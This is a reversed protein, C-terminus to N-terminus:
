KQSQTQQIGLDETTKANAKRGEMMYESEEM